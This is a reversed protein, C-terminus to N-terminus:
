SDLFIMCELKRTITLQLSKNFVNPTLSHEFKSCYRFMIRSLCQCFIICIIIIFLLCYLLIIYHLYLYSCWMVAWDLHYQFSSLFLMDMWLHYMGNASWGSVRMIVSNKRLVKFKIGLTNNQLYYWLLYFSLIFHSYGNHNLLFHSHM